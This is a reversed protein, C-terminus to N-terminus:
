TATEDCYPPSASRRSDRSRNRRYNALLWRRWSQSPLRRPRGVVRSPLELLEAVREDAAPESHNKAFELFPLFGEANVADINIRVDFRVHDAATGPVLSAHQVNDRGGETR